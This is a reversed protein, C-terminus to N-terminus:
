LDEKMIMIAEGPSLTYRNSRITTSMSIIDQDQSLNIPKHEDLSINVIFDFRQKKTEILTIILDNEQKINVVNSNVILHQIKKLWQNIHSVSQYLETEKGKHDILAGKFQEYENNEPLFYTFYQIGKTGYAISTNVQWLIEHEKPIRVHKGFSCTQIFCIPILEYTSAIEKILKLQKFYDERIHPYESEFPYFDYSIYPTHITEAYRKYYSQADVEQSVKQDFQWAGYTLQASTAHLPMLNIYYLLQPFKEVFVKYSQSLKQFDEIGPEDSVLFGKLGHQIMERIDSENNIVFEESVLRPDRAFYNINEYKAYSLAKVIEDKHFELNEYLGYITNLGLDKIKKYQELTNFDESLHNLKHPPAIWASILMENEKLFPFVSRYSKLLYARGLM